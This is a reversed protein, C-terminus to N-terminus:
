NLYGLAKLRKKIEPTMDVEHASSLGPINWILCKLLPNDPSSFNRPMSYAEMILRSDKAYLEFPMVSPHEGFKGFLILDAPFPKGDLRLDFDLLANEPDTKFRFGKEGPFYVPVTKTGDPMNLVVAEHLSFDWTLLKNDESIQILDQPSAQYGSSSIFRGNTSISGQIRHPRGDGLLRLTVGTQAGELIKQGWNRMVEVQKPMSGSIDTQELPDKRLDFLRVRKEPTTEDILKYHDDVVSFLEREVRSEQSFVPRKIKGSGYLLPYLSSGQLHGKYELDLADLITPFLDVLNATQSVRKGGLAGEPFHIILPVHILSEYLDRGHKWRQHELFEEGHDATVMILSRDYIGLERLRQILEGFADDTSRIEGDYLSIVHRKDEDPINAGWEDFNEGTVAGKYEPDFLKDYPPPPSYPDHPDMVHIYIFHKSNPEMKRLYDVVAQTAGPTDTKEDLYSQFGQNFGFFSSVWPNTVFGANTINHSSLVDALTTLNSLLKQNKEMVGNYAPYLGTFLSAVSPNTWPAQSYAKEFLVSEGAFADINPSTERKYGYCGLHDPRLTDILYIIILDPSKIPENEPSHGSM